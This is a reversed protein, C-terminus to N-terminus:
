KQPKEMLSRKRSRLGDGHHPRRLVSDGSKEMERAEDALKSAFRMMEHGTAVLTTYIKWDTVKFCADVHLQTVHKAIEFAALAKSKAYPNSYEAAELAVDRDIIIRPLSPKECRKVSDILSDVADVMVNFIGVCALLRIVDSNFLAMEVPDLFERRAGIMPDCEIIIYGFGAKEFEDKIRVSPGDSVILTPVGSEALIKRAEKPGPTQQAPGASIILDPKLSLLTKIVEVCQEIGLKAGSGVVRVDLDKREAREDLLFELLPISGLCGIKAIGLKVM